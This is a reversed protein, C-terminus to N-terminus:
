PHASTSPRPPPPPLPPLPLARLETHYKGTYQTHCGRCASRAAPIDGNRAADAGDRAISVWNPYKAGEPALAAIQDFADGLASTEGFQIAPNAIRKMWDQLPCDPLDKAGCFRGADATAAGEQEAQV